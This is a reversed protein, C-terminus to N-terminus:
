SNELKFKRKLFQEGAYSVSKTKGFKDVGLINMITRTIKEMIEVDKLGDKRVYIMGCGKGNQNSIAKIIKNISDDLM